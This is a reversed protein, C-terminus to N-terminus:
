ADGWAWEPLTMQTAPITRTKWPASSGLLKPDSPDYWIRGGCRVGVLGSHMAWPGIVGTHGAVSAHHTLRHVWARDRMVSCSRFWLTLQRCRIADILREIDLGVHDVLPRGPMGHGWLQVECVEDPKASHVANYVDVVDRCPWVDAGRALAWAGVRWSAGLLGPETDDYCIIKRM